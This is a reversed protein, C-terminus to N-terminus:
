GRDPQFRLGTERGNQRGPEMIAPESWEKGGRASSSGWFFDAVKKVRFKPARGRKEGARNMSLM